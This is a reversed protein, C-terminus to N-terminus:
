RVALQLDAKLRQRYHYDIDMQTHFQQCKAKGDAKASYLALDAKTMLDELTDQANTSTM